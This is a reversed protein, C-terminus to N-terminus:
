SVEPSSRGQARTASFASCQVSVLSGAVVMPAEPGVSFGFTSTVLSLLLVPAIFNAPSAGGPASSTSQQAGILQAMTYGELNVALLGVLLGGFTCAAPIFLTPDTLPLAAPLKTWVTSVAGKLCRAYATGMCATGMGLAVAHLSIKSDYANNRAEMRLTPRLMTTPRTIGANLASRPHALMLAQSGDMLAMAMAMAMWGRRKEVM